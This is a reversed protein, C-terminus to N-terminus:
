VRPQIHSQELDVQSRSRKTEITQESKDIRIDTHIDSFDLVYM